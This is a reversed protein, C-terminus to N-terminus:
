LKWEGTEEFREAAEAAKKVVAPEYGSVSLLRIANRTDARGEKLKYDFRVDGDEVSEGFHMNTYHADLMGTLETDHTAAFILTGPADLSALIEASAAIREITNTGRLVEDIFGLVPTANENEADRAAACIRGLSRIEVVFYSEGGSLNDALAMSSYIRFFPARFSRAPVTDIAQGLIQCIAATKLFTSKGSANSGTLLIGREASISNPVPHTLLPHVMDVAEIFARRDAKKKNNAAYDRDMRACESRSGAFCSAEASAHRDEKEQMEAPANVDMVCSYPLSAAFSAAAIAADLRGLDEYLEMIADRHKRAELIMSNYHIVDIHFFLNIYQIILDGIGTGVGANSTVFSAGRRFAALERCSERLKRQIESFMRIRNEERKGGVGASNPTGSFGPTDAESDEGAKKEASTFNESVTEKQKDPDPTIQSVREAAKMLSSVAALGGMCSNKDGRVRLQLFTGLVMSAVLLLIGSVPSIFLLAISVATLIGSFIYAGTRQPVAESLRALNEYLSGKRVRGTRFVAMEVKRRLAADGAFLRKLESRKALTDSDMAPHRLWACLVEEGAASMTRNVRAFIDDMGCDNWTIDDITGCGAPTVAKAFDGIHAFYAREKESPIKGFSGNSKRVFDRKRTKEQGALAWAFAAAALAVIILVAVLERSM